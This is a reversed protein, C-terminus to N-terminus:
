ISKIDLNIQKKLADLSPFKKETRIMKNFNINIIEGYIDKEFNLIHAELSTHSGNITPRIGFNAIGKGYTTDVAYVGYPLEILEPPYVLNATRFGITRGIQNGKVIEGEISFNQGLMLNAKEINGESLLKRIKTSSIIENNIKQPPIKFYKYNYNKAQEELFNVNGSKNKGFNHNWGTSISIPHFYNILINNLYEKATLLAFDEFNLEYLYDIGLSAIRKEREERTLIYKPCVGKFYCYPHDSFTIVASKTNNKKAFDVASKIVARHGIHVGDFYGLAIALNQKQNLESFKQM